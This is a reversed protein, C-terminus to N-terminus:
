LQCWWISVNEVNSAIQAPFEGTVPSNRSCLGTICLKSTKKWRCRFLCNLLCYHPQHYSIGNCENHRWQLSFFIQESSVPVSTIHSPFSFYIPDLSVYVLYSYALVIEYFIMLVDDVGDVKFHFIPVWRSHMHKTNPIWPWVMDPKHYFNHYSYMEKMSINWIKNLIENFNTHLALQCYTMITKPLPKSGFM